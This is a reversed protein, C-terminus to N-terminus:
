PGAGEGGDGRHDLAGPRPQAQPDQEWVHEQAAAPVRVPEGGGAVLVPDPAPVPLTRFYVGRIPDVSVGRKM